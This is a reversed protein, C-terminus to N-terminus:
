RQGGDSAPVGAADEVASWCRLNRHGYVEPNYDHPHERYTTLWHGDLEYEWSFLEKRQPEDSALVGSAALQPALIRYLRRRAEHYGKTWEDTEPPDDGVNLYDLLPSGDAMVLGRVGPAPSAPVEQVGPTGWCPRPLDLRNQCANETTCDACLHKNHRLTPVSALVGPAANLAADISEADARGAKVLEVHAAWWKSVKRTASNKVMVRCGYIDWGEVTGHFCGRSHIVYVEADRPYGLELATRLAEQAADVATSAQAVCRSFNPAHGNGFWHQFDAV